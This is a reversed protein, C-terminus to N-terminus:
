SQEKRVEPILFVEDDEDMEWMDGNRINVANYDVPKYPKDKTIAAATRRLMVMNDFVFQRNEPVTQFKTAQM